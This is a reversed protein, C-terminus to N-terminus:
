NDDTPFLMFVCLLPPRIHRSQVNVFMEMLPVATWEINKPPNEALYLIFYNVLQSDAATQVSPRPTSSKKKLNFFFYTNIVNNETQGAERTKKEM